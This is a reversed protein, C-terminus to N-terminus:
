VEVIDVLITRPETRAATSENKCTRLRPGVLDALQDRMAVPPIFSPYSHECCVM